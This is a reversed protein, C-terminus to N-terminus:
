VGLNIDLKAQHFRGSNWLWEAPIGSLYQRSFQFKHFGVPIGASDWLNGSSYSVIEAPIRSNICDFNHVIIVSLSCEYISKKMCLKWQVTKRVGM